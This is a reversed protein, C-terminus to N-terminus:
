AEPLGAEDDADESDEGAVDIDFDSAYDIEAAVEEYDLMPEGNTRRALWVLAAILDIDADKQAARMLGIFSYGTARRLAMTDLSTLDGTRVTYTQDGLVVSMGVDLADKRAKDTRPTHKRQLSPRNGM